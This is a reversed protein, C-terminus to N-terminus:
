APDRGADVEFPVVYMGLMGHRRLARNTEPPVTGLNEGVVHADHRHAALALVAYLEEAPYTVYAGDAASAGDPVWWLRHFGLIHDVRVWRAVRFHAEICSRMYAHGDARAAQPHVPPFGWNQGDRFFFDPPAGVAAGRAFLTGERAVDFGDAHSGIPVDLYLEQGRARMRQALSDLQEEVLWQAYAHYRAVPDDIAVSSMAGRGGREVSARFIAYDVVDPRAALFRAFEDRRAASTELRALCAELVVRKRAALAPLDVFEGPSPETFSSGPPMEPVAALDLYVENWHRRSVPAYPSPDNPEDGAGFFTALVPLTGVISAGFAGAWQAFRDLSAFTGTSARDREHLAYTPAFVGWCRASRALR